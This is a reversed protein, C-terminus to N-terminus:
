GVEYVRKKMCQINLVRHQICLIIDYRSLIFRWVGFKSKKGFDAKSGPSCNKLSICEKESSTM